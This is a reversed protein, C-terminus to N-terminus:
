AAKPKKSKATKSKKGTKDKPDEPPEFREPGSGPLQEIYVSQSPFAFGTDARNEVIDKIEFALKQKIDLWEAWVTTKTFCYVMIDISSAGFSDTYVLTTVDKDFDDNGELYAKIEETIVRLQDVTTRYEVGIQWYIRRHTMRSFNIIPANSLLNNPVQVPAKDFRRVSTSRFGIDEVTGEVVGDIKIWDGPQFKKETIVTLGAFLNKFVDQAGLAVAAGFIGLGALLAGVNIGWIELIVVAGLVVIVVKIVNFLWRSMTPTLLADLKHTVHRIPEMTRYAGWFITFAILTQVFAAFGDNDLGIYKAAFYLGAIVPIFKIPPLLADIVKDDLGNKSRETLSHLHKQVFRSFIGRLLLFVAFILFAILAQTIDGDALSDQWIGKIDNSFLEIFYTEEGLTFSATGALTQQAANTTETIEPM